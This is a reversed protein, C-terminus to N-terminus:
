GATMSPSRAAHTTVAGVGTTPHRAMADTLDVKRSFDGALILQRFAGFAEIDYPRRLAHLGAQDMPQQGWAAAGALLWAIAAAGRALFSRNLRM